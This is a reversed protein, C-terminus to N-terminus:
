SDGINAIVAVLVVVELNTSCLGSNEDISCISVM